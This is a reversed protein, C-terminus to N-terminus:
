YNSIWVTYDDLEVNGSKNYDGNDPGYVNQGYHILWVIFDQGDVQGDGNADGPTNPQPTPSLTPTGTPPTPIVGYTGIKVATDVINSGNYSSSSINITLQGSGNSSINQNSKTLQSKTNFKWFEVPFSTNPKM